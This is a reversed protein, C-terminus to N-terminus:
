PYTGAQVVAPRRQHEVSDVVVDRDRGTRSRGEVHRSVAKSHGGPEAPIIDVRGVIPVKDEAVVAVSPEVVAVAHVQSAPGLRGGPRGEERDIAPSDAYESAGVLRQGITDPVM